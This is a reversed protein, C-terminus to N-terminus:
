LQLLKCLMDPTAHVLDPKKEYEKKMFTAGSSPGCPIGEYEKAQMKGLNESFHSAGIELTFKNDYEQYSINVIKM